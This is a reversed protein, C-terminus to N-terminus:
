NFADTEMENCTKSHYSLASVTHSESCCKPSYKHETLIKVHKQYNFVAKILIIQRFLKDASVCTKIIITTSNKM